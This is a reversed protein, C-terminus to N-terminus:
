LSSPSYYICIVLAGRSVQTPKFVKGPCEQYSRVEKDAMQKSVCLCVVIVEEGVYVSIWGECLIM